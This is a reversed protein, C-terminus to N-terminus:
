KRNNRVQEIVSDVFEPDYSYLGEALPQPQSMKAQERVAPDSMMEQVKQNFFEMEKQQTETVVGDCGLDQWLIGPVGGAEYSAQWWPFVAVLSKVLAAKQPKELNYMDQFNDGYKDNIVYDRMNNFQPLLMPILGNDVSLKTIEAVESPTLPLVVYDTYSRIAGSMAILEPISGNRLANYIINRYHANTTAPDLGPVVMNSGETRLNVMAGPDKERVIAIADEYNKIRLETRFIDLDIVGQSWEDFGTAKNNYDYISMFGIVNQNILGAEPDIKDFNRYATGWAANLAEITGYKDTLWQRFLEKEKKGMAMRGVMEYRTYGRTDETFYQTLGAGDRWYVDGWRGIQYSWITGVAKAADEDAKDAEGSYAMSYRLNDGTAWRVINPLQASGFYFTGMGDLKMGLRRLVDISFKLADGKHNSRREVTGSVLNVECPSVATDYLYYWGQNTVVNVGAAQM